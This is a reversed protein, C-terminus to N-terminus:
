DAASEKKEEEAKKDFPSGYEVLGRYLAKAASDFSVFTKKSDKPLLKVQPKYVGHHTDCVFGWLGDPFRVTYFTGTFPNNAGFSSSYEPTKTIGLSLLITKIKM